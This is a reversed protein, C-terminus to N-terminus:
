TGTVQRKSWARGDLLVNPELTILLSVWQYHAQSGTVKLAGSRFM